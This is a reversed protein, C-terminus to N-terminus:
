VVAVSLLLDLYTQNSGTITPSCGLHPSAWWLAHCPGGLQPSAGWLAHCPGGLQPSAWWLVHCPEGLQPSAWWLAHCPEGLQPSAWSLAYSIVHYFTGGSPFTYTLSCPCVRPSQPSQSPSLSCTPEPFCNTRIAVHCM